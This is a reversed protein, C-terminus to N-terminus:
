LDYHYHWILMLLSPPLASILLALSFNMSIRKSRTTLELIQIVTKALRVLITPDQVLAIKELLFKCEYNNLSAHTSFSIGLYALLPITWPFDFNRLFWFLLFMPFLLFTGILLGIFLPGLYILLLQNLDAEISPEIFGYSSSFNFYELKSYNVGLMKCFCQRLFINLVIGLFTLKNFLGGPIIFM